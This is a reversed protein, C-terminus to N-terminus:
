PGPPRGNMFGSFLRLTRAMDRVCGGAGMRGGRDVRARDGGRLPVLQRQGPVDAANQVTVVQDDRGAVQGALLEAVQGSHAPGDRGRDPGPGPWSRRPVPRASGGCRGTRAVGPWRGRFRVAFGSSCAAGSLWGGWALLSGALSLLAERRKGDRALTLSDM